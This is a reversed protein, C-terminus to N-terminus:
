MSSEYKWTHRAASRITILPAIETRSLSSSSRRSSIAATQM